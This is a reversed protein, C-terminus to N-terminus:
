LNCHRKNICFSKLRHNQREFCSRERSRRREVSTKDLWPVNQLEKLFHILSNFFVTTKMRYPVFPTIGSRWFFFFYFPTVGLLFTCTASPSSHLLWQVDMLFRTGELKFAWSMAVLRPVLIKISYLPGAAVYIPFCWSLQLWYLCICSTPRLRGRTSKPVCDSGITQV